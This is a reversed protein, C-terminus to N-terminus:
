AADGVSWLAAIPLATIQEALAFASPGTRVVVGAVFRPGLHGRMWELHSADRRNPAATAEHMGM